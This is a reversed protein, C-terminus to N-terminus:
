KSQSYIADYGKQIAKHIDREEINGTVTCVRYLLVRCLVICIGGGEISAEKEFDCNKINTNNNNNNNNIPQQQLMNLSISHKSFRLINPNIHNINSLEKASKTKSIFEYTQNADRLYWPQDYIDNNNNNSKSNSNSNSNNNNNSNYNSYKNKGNLGYSLFSYISSKNVGCFM